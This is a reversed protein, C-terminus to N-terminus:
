RNTLVAVATFPIQTGDTLVVYQVELAPDFTPHLVVFDDIYGEATADFPTGDPWLFTIDRAQGVSDWDEFEMVDPDGTREPEGYILRKPGLFPLTSGDLAGEREGPSGFQMKFAGGGRHLPAMAQVGDFLEPCGGDVDVVWDTGDYSAYGHARNAAPCSSNLNVTFVMFTGPAEDWRWDDLTKIGVKHQRVAWSNPVGHEPDGQIGLVLDPECLGGPSYHGQEECVTEAGGHFDRGVFGDDSDLSLIRTTGDGGEAEFFLRIGDATPVASGTGIWGVLPAATDPQIVGSSGVHSTFDALSTLDDPDVPRNGTAVSLSGGFGNMAGYYLQVRGALDAPADPGYAIAHAKANSDAVSNTLGALDSGTGLLQWVEEGTTGTAIAAAPDPALCGADPCPAVDLSYTTASKLDTFTHAGSDTLTTAVAGTTEDRLTLQVLGPVSWSAELRSCSPYTAGDVAVEPPTLAATGDPATDDDDAPGTPCGTLLLAILCTRARM